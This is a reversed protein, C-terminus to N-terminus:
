GAGSLRMGLGQSKKLSSVTLGFSGPIRESGGPNPICGAGCDREDRFRLGQVMFKLGEVRM